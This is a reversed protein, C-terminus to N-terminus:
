IRHIAEFIDRHQLSIEVGQEEAALRLARRFVSRQVEEPVTLELVLALSGPKASGEPATLTVSRINEINVDFSAITGTVAPVLGPNDPGIITMVYPATEGASGADSEAPVPTVWASFGADALKEKLDASLAGPDLDGPARISFLGAFQGLLTTQALEVLVCGREFLVASVLNVLGPRDKGVITVLLTEM